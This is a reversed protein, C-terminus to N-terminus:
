DGADKEFDAAWAMVNFTEANHTGVYLRWGRPIVTRSEPEYTGNAAQVSASPTIATVLLEHVLFWEDGPNRLYFRIVGATTTGAAQQKAKLWVLGNPSDGADLLLKAATPATRSTEAASVQVVNFRTHRSVPMSTNVVPM